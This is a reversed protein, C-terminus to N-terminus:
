KGDPRRRITDAAAKEPLGSCLDNDGAWAIGACDGLGCAAVLDRCMLENEDLMLYASARHQLYVANRPRLGVAKDFSKVALAPLRRMLFATGLADHARDLTEDLNLAAYADEMAADAKDLKLLVEARSALALANEPDMELCTNLQELSAKPDPWLGGYQPLLTFFLELSKMAKIRSDAEHLDLEGEAGPSSQLLAAADQDYAELLAERRSFIRAAADVVDPRGLAAVVARGPAEPPVLSLRVEVRMQPPFGSLEKGEVKVSYLLFALGLIDPPKPNGTTVAGAFRVEDVGALQRMATQMAQNEAAIRAAYEAMEVRVPGYFPRSAVFERARGAAFSPFPALCVSLLGFLVALRIRPIM